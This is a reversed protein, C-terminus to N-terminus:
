NLYLRKYEGLMVERTWKNKYEEYANEKIENLDYKNNFIDLFIKALEDKDSLNFLIGNHNDEIMECIGGVASSVVPLKNAFAEIIVLPIGEMKSTMVLLDSNLMYEQINEKFGLFNVYSEIGKEICINILEERLEGEGIINCEFQFRTDKLKYISELLYEINKIDVLRGVFLIKFKNSNISAKFNEKEYTVGNYVVVFKDTYKKHRYRLKGQLDNSVAVVNKAYRATIGEVIKYIFKKLGKFEYFIDSHVASIFKVKLVKSLIIGVINAPSGNCHVIKIDERKVYKTINIITKYFTKISNNIKIVNYDNILKSKQVFEGNLNVILTIDFENELGVLLSEIQREMGGYAKGLNIILLKNKKNM